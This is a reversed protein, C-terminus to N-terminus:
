PHYNPCTDGVAGTGSITQVTETAPIVPTFGSPNADYQNTTGSGIDANSYGYFQPGYQATGGATSTPTNMVYNVVKEQGPLFHYKVYGDYQISLDTVAKTSKTITGDDVPQGVWSFLLVKSFDKYYEKSEASYIWSAKFMKSKLYEKMPMIENPGLKVSTQRTIKFAKTFENSDYPTSTPLQWRATVGTTLTDPAPGANGTSGSGGSPDTSASFMNTVWLQTDVGLPFDRRAVCEYIKLEMSANSRNQIRMDYLVKDVNVIWNKQGIDQLNGSTTTSASPAADFLFNVPRKTGLYQVLSEGGLFLAAYTRQGQTGSITKAYTWKLVQPTCLHKFLAHQLRRQHRKYKALGKGGKKSSIRKRKTSRLPVSKRYSSRIDNGSLALGLVDGRRTGGRSAPIRRTPPAPARLYRRYLRATHRGGRLLPTGYRM